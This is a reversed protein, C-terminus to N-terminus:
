KKVGGRETPFFYLLLCGILFGNSLLVTSWSGNVFSNAYYICISIVLYKPLRYSTIDLIRFCMVLILPLLFVGIATPFNAYMDGLMGNNANSIKGMFTGIVKPIDDTYVPDFWLKGLIKDRYISLPHQSFYTAYVESLRVPLYLMRDGFLALPYIQKTVGSLVGCGLLGLTLMIAMWRYMWARYLFYCGVLLVLLLFATKSASISYYFLYVVILAGSLLWNKEQLWYLLLISLLITMMSLCYNLIVPINYSAAEARVTYVDNLDLKLRFGTYYGSIGMVLLISFVTLGFFLFKTYRHPLRQMHLSPLRLQFFLLMAWFVAGSITFWLSSGTCGAYSSFPLFYIYNILTVMISSARDEQQQIGIMGPLCVLLILWSVAYKLPVIDSYFGTYSFIESIQTVYIIDLILRYLVVLLCQVLFTYQSGIENLRAAIRGLKSGRLRIFINTKCFNKSVRVFKM